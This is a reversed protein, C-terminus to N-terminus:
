ILSSIFVNQKQIITSKKKEVYGVVGFAEEVKRPHVLFYEALFTLLNIRTM